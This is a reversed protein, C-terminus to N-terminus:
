FLVAQRKAAFGHCHAQSRAHDPPHSDGEPMREGAQLRLFSRRRSADHPAVPPSRGTRLIVFAIRGQTRPSGAALHRLRSGCGPSGDRQPTAHSLSPPAAHPPQRRFPRLAMCTFCPSRRPTMLTNMARDLACLAPWPSTLADTTADFRPLARPALPRLFTSAHHSSGRFRCRRCHRGFPAPAHLGSLARTSPETPLVARPRPGFRTDPRSAHQRRQFVAHFSTHGSAKRASCSSYLM